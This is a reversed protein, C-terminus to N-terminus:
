SGEGQEDDNEAAERKKREAVAAPNARNITMKTRSKSGLFNKAIVDEETFRAMLIEGLNNRERDWSVYITGDPAQFGDPYSVRRREDLMLGGGWTQGDDTSLFAALHSRTPIGDELPIDDVAEGHKILLINGSQLRFMFHRTSAHKIASEVPDSWTRGGDLSTSEWLGNRTRATMWLSGDRRELFVHEDFRPSPFRAGGRRTWTKGEDTSAFAHAMRYKDLERFPELDRLPASIVKRDWLSIPMIWEGNSLVIPKNLSMGHWIRVPDSWTPDNTDPNECLTFWSGARGDFMGMSQDFFLWLRGKPDTWLNGVVARRRLPLNDDHPDIVLRPKSWSGGDDDSSALVIYAKDNDGGGVWSAWIRGNSTMAIGLNMGYDLRDNDYEPLPSTNVVPPVLAPDTLEQLSEGPTAAASSVTKLPLASAGMSLSGTVSSIPTDGSVEEMGIDDWFITGYVRNSVMAIEVFNGDKPAEIVAEIKHWDDTLALDERLIPSIAKSIRFWSEIESEEAPNSPETVAGVRGAASVFLYGFPTESFNPSTSRFALRVVPGSSSTLTDATGRYWAWVRYRRGPEVEGPPHYILYTAYDDSSAKLCAGGERGSDSVIELSCGKDRQSPPVYIKWASNELSSFDSRFPLNMAQLSAIGAVLFFVLGFKSEFRAHNWPLHAKMKM